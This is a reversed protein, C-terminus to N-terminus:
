LPGGGLADTVPITGEPYNSGSTPKIYDPKWFCRCQPYPSQHMKFWHVHDGPHPWHPRGPPVFHVDTAITGVPPICPKCQDPQCETKNQIADATEKAAKAAFFSVFFRYGWQLARFGQQIMAPNLGEPDSWNVPNGGVYAYLNLGGALGIPDASIYRGTEQDYYRNWNYHLTPVILIAAVKKKQEFLWLYFSNSHWWHHVFCIVGFDM